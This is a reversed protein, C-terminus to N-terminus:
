LLRWPGLCSIKKCVDGCSCGQVVNRKAILSGAEVTNQVQVIHLHQGDSVRQNSSDNQAQVNHYVEMCM